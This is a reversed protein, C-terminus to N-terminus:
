RTGHAVLGAFPHLGDLHVSLPPRQMHGAACVYPALSTVPPSAPDFGAVGLVKLHASWPELRAALADPGRGAYVGVNRYGPSARLEHVGEFSVSAHTRAHVAGRVAAVARWQMQAARADPPLEGRPMPAEIAALADALLEAFRAPSVSAGDDVVVAHPSLCGRQDYAAVDLALERAAARASDEGGLAGPAVYAAGLGHGHALFRAHAPSRARLAAITDDDGYVSVLDAHGLLTRKLAQEGRAFTVVKCAAGVDPHAGHLAKELYRPFVDDASSAKALVPVGAVLPLALARLGATFVNGALVVAALAPLADSAPPAAALLAVAQDADWACWAADLAWAVMPSTLGTSSTLEQRLARGLASDADRLATGATGIAEATARPGLARLAPGARVLRRSAARLDLVEDGLSRAM